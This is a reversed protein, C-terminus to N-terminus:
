RLGPHAGHAALMPDDAPLSDWQPPRLLRQGLTELLQRPAGIDAVIVEGLYVQAPLAQFGLKLGAFTVTVAAKVACELPEGSDADLGSPIDASVVISSAPGLSNTWHILDRIPGHPPLSLGTGLLADVVVPAHGLAEWADAAVKPANRSADVITLGMARAIRLQLQADQTRPEPHTMLISVQLGANHLHRAAALGDGGNNGPGCLIMAAGSDATRARHEAVGALARAANEMLLITPIGYTQFALRDIDRLAQASFALAWNGPENGARSRHSQADHMREDHNRNSM